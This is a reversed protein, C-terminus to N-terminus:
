VILSVLDEFTKSSRLDAAKVLKGYKDDCLAIFAVAAMSDWEAIDSLGTDFTLTGDELELMNEIDRLVDERNM